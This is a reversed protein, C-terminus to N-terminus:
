RQGYEIENNPLPLVFINNTAPEMIGSPTTLGIGLRKYMYFIQGEGYLEKRAEGVLQNLFDQKGASVLSDPIGRHFRVSDVYAMAQTPNADYSCEAAIYYVESLRLAPALLPHRNTDVDRSYKVLYLWSGDSNTAPNFWEKYRLDAGGVGSTQYLNSGGAQDLYLGVNQNFRNQLTTVLTPIYWSFLLEKYLIRDVNQPDPNTFDGVATWPFKNSNIVEQANSLASDTKNMYLYARALEGCVAYYNLRNRRNQLFLSPNSQETSTTPPASPSTSNWPYDIIYAPSLIPDVPKLLAKANNLDQLVDTLVASVTSLPTVKDSFDVVYPIAPAAPNNAFSPAFMRLLDFHLYARMALAEGKIIGYDTSTLLKKGTEINGLILNCNAIANYLSGWITDKRSVFYIDQYNYLSTQLYHPYDNPVMYYNQALVDLMGFSLEDGYAPPQSCRSYVGNLAEEFGEQSDFLDSASIQSQPKVDLWKSCSSCLLVVSFLAVFIKM